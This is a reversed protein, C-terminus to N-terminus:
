RVPAPAGAQRWGQVASWAKELANQDDSVPIIGGLELRMLEIRGSSRLTRFGFDALFDRPFVTRHVLFREEQSEREPYRYAFAELAPVGRDRSEGIAALLLSKEVWGTAGRLLYVCTVLAADDSAPGAPLDAARPFLHSPGYQLSGLLHGHDDLYISGWEGWEQEAREIWREKSATRNGRSQWWVCDRCVPAVVHLSGASLGSVGPAPM